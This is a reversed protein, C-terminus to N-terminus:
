ETFEGMAGTEFIWRTLVVAGLNANSAEVNTIVDIAMAQAPEDDDVEIDGLAAGIGAGSMDAGSMAGGDGSGRTPNFAPSWSAPEAIQFM